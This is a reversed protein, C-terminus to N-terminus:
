VTSSNFSDSNPLESVEKALAIGNSDVLVVALRISTAHIANAPEMAQHTTLAIGGILCGDNIVAPIVPARNTRDAIKNVPLRCLSDSYSSVVTM